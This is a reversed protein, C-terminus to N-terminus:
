YYGKYDYEEPQSYAPPGYVVQHGAALANRNLVYQDRADHDAYQVSQLPAADYDGANHEQEHSELVLSAEQHGEEEDAVTPLPAVSAAATQAAHTAAAAANSQALQAAAAAKDSASQTAVFDLRAAALQKDITEARAKAQGVMTTQAALEAAAEAAAQAAHDSTAQAANLATTVIQLQQMAQQASNRAAAASRAAQQLQMKEGDVAVYADRHQQELGSLIIQKGALAAAATAASQAAGQALQNKAVYAAQGAASHQSNVQTRAQDAAGRAIAVLGGGVSYGTKGHLGHSTPAPHSDYKTPLTIDSILAYEGLAADDYAPLYQQHQRTKRVDKQVVKAAPSALTVSVCALVVLKFFM